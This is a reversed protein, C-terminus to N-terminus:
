FIGDGPTTNQKRRLSPTLSCTTAVVVLTHYVPPHSLVDACGCPTYESNYHHDVRYFPPPPSLQLVAGNSGCAELLTLSNLPQWRLAPQHALQHQQQILLLQLLLLLLWLHLICKSASFSSPLRDRRCEQPRLLQRVLRPM